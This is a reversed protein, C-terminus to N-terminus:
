ATLCGLASAVTETTCLQVGIRDLDALREHTTQSVADTVLVARLDRESADFLTARPCNPLNCGAVVVTSCGEQELWEQLGTRYFGSWRPKFLIVERDGVHQMQGALLAASDLRPSGPIVGEAIQAGDSDPAVIVAGEEITRRRPLDVDSGGPEYLRVVHAIPRGAGRFAAALAAVNPVVASTGAIASVGDDLFDRQLDVVILAASDWCPATYDTM